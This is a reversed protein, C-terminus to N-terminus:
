KKSRKNKTRLLAYSVLFMILDSSLLQRLFFRLCHRTRKAPSGVFFKDWGIDQLYFALITCCCEYDRWCDAASDGLAGIMMIFHSNSNTIVASFAETIFAKIDVVKVCLFLSSSEM